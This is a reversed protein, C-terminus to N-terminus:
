RQEGVEVFVVVQQGIEGRGADFFDYVEGAAGDADLFLVSGEGFGGRGLFFFIILLTEVPQFLFDFLLDLREPSALPM